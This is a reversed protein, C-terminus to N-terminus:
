NSRLEQVEAADRPTEDVFVAGAFTRALRSLADDLERRLPEGQDAAWEVYTRANVEDPTEPTRSKAEWIVRRDAVRVVRVSAVVVIGFPRNLTIWNWTKGSTISDIRLTVVTDARDVSVLERGAVSRANEAFRVAFLDALAANEALPRIVLDAQAVDDGSPATAAGAVMSVPTYLVGVAAGAAAGVVVVFAGFGSDDGHMSEGAMAAGYAAFMVTAGLGRVTGVGLGALWGTTPHDLSAGPARDVEVAVDGFQARQEPTPGPPPATKCAASLAVVALLRAARRM